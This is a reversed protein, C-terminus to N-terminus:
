QPSQSKLISIPRPESDLQRVLSSGHDESCGDVTHTLIRQYWWASLVAHSDTEIDGPCDPLGCAVSGSVKFDLWYGPRLDMYGTHTEPDAFLAGYTQLFIPLRGKGGSHLRLTVDAVEYKESAGDKSIRTVQEGDPQWPIAITAPGSNKLRLVATFDQGIHLQPPSVQLITLRLGARSSPGPLTQPAPSTTFHVTPCNEQSPSPVHDQPARWSITLDRYGAQQAFVPLALLAFYALFYTISRTM